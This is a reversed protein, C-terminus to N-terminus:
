SIALCSPTLTGATRLVRRRRPHFGVGDAWSSNGRLDASHAGGLAAKPEPRKMAEDLRRQPSSLGTRKKKM